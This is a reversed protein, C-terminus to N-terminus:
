IKYSLPRENSADVARCLMEDLIEYLEPVRDELEEALRVAWGPGLPWLRAQPADLPFVTVLALGLIPLRIRRGLRRFSPLWASVRSSFGNVAGPGLAQADIRVGPPVSERIEGRLRALAHEHVEGDGEGLYGFIPVPIGLVLLRRLGVPLLVSGLGGGVSFVTADLAELLSRGLCLIEDVAVQSTSGGQDRRGESNLLGDGVRMRGAKQVAQLLLRAVLGRGYWEGVELVKDSKVGALHKGSSDTTM